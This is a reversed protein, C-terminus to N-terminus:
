SNADTQCMLSVNEQPLIHVLHGADTTNCSRITQAGFILLKIVEGLFEEALIQEDRM